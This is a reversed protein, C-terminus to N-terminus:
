FLNHIGASLITELIVTETRYWGLVKFPLSHDCQLSMCDQVDLEM